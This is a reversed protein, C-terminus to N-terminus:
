NDYTVTVEITFPGYTRKIGWGTLVDTPGGPGTQGNRETAVAHLLNFAQVVRSDDQYVPLQYKTV